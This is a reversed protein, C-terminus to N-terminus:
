AETTRGGRVAVRTDAPPAPALEELTQEPVDQTFRHHLFSGVIALPLTLLLLLAFILVLQSGSAASSEHRTVPPATTSYLVTSPNLNQSVLHYIENVQNTTEIAEDFVGLIQQRIQATQEPRAPAQGGRRQLSDLLSRYYQEEGRLPVIKLSEAQLDSVITQRFAFDQSNNTLAVLRELFSNDIQPMVAPQQPQQSAGAAAVQATGSGDDDYVMLSRRLMEVRGEAQAREIENFALRTELFAAANVSGGTLGSNIITGVLPEIKFKISDILRFRLEDLSARQAGSTRLVKAGPIKTLADINSIVRNIKVRLMDLAILHDYRDVSTKDFAASSITTMDYLVVGKHKTTQEAWTSLVDSLVKVHVSKPLRRTKGTDVYTIAYDTRSISARKEQFEQELRDRDVASLKPEALKARYERELAEFAPNSEVVFISNKFTQFDVLDTLANANYVGLLIPTSVIETPSFKMGNPYQGTEAGKFELRFPLSTVRRSPVLVVYAVAITAYGVAVAVLALLIAARYSRLITLFQRLSLTPAGSEEALEADHLPSHPM